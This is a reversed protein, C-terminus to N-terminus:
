PAPAEFVVATGSATVSQWCNSGLDTGARDYRVDVLGNAGLSLARLRLQSLAADNSAPPDWLKNQCSHGEVPGAVSKIKPALSITADTYFPMTQAKAVAGPAAAEMPLFTGCGGLATCAAVAIIAKKM